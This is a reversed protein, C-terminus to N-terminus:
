ILIITYRSMGHASIGDGLDTGVMLTEHRLTGGQVSAAMLAAHVTALVQRSRRQRNRSAGAGVPRDYHHVEFAHRACENAKFSQDFLDFGQLWIFEPTAAPAPDVSVPIGYSAVAATVITAISGQLAEAKAVTM